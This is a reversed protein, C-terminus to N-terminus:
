GTVLKVIDDKSIKTWSKAYIIQPYQRNELNNPEPNNDFCIYAPKYGYRISIVANDVPKNGGSVWNIYRNGILTYDTTIYYINGSEDLITGNLEFVEIEWLRDLDGIHNLTETRFLTTAAVIILDGKAINWWPYLAMRCEGSAMDHSYVENDDRSKLDNTIIQTLDSYYYDALMQGSVITRSTKITNGILKYDTLEVGTVSNYIREIQCIDSEGKIPNSSQYGLDFYTETPWMLGADEDVELVDGEILTWGDFHYTVRKREYKKANVSTNNTYITDEDFSLVPIEDIGGQIVATVREVKIVDLIPIYYPYMESVSDNSRTNEDAILFRRQYTYIYGTGSCIECHYTPSGHGIKACYPCAIAQKIKCLQGHANIHKQFSLPNGYVTLSKTQGINRNEGM